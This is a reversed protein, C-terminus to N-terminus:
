FLKQPIRLSCTKHLIYERIVDKSELNPHLYHIPPKSKARLLFYRSHLNKLRLHALVWFNQAKFGPWLIHNLFRNYRIWAYLVCRNMLVGGHVIMLVKQDLFLPMWYSRLCIKSSKQGGVWEKYVFWTLLFLDHVKYAYTNSQGGVWGKRDVYDKFAGM